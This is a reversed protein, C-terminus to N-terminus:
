MRPEVRVGDDIADGPYLIVTDGRDLGGLVQVEQDTRAGLQVATFRARGDVIRYAAWGEPSRFVASADVQLVDDGEWTVIEAEVRFGDGIVKWSEPADVVDLIVN